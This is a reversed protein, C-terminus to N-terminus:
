VICFGSEKKKQLLNRLIQWSSRSEKLCLCKTEKRIAATVSFWVKNWMLLMNPPGACRFLPKDGSHSWVKFFHLNSIFTEILRGKEATVFRCHRQREAYHGVSLFLHLVPPFYKDERREYHQHEQSTPRKDIPSLPLDDMTQTHTQTHTRAHM